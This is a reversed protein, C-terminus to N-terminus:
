FAGMLQVELQLACNLKRKVRYTALDMLELADRATAGGLNVLYNSQVLSFQAQGIRAGRLGARDILHSALQGEPNRFIPGLFPGEPRFAERFEQCAKARANALDRDLDPDGPGLRVRTLAAFGGLRAMTQSRARVVWRVQGERDIVEASDILTRLEADYGPDGALLAGGISGTLGALCSADVGHALATPLLTEIPCGAGVLLYRDDQPDVEVKALAGSLRLGLGKFGWDGALLRSGTGVFRTPMSLESAAMLAERIEHTSGPRYLYQLPGGVGFSCLESLPQDYLLGGGLRAELRSQRTGTQTEIRTDTQASTKM